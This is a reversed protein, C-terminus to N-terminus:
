SLRPLTNKNYPPSEFKPPAIIISKCCFNIAQDNWIRRIKISNSGDRQGTHTLFLVILDANSIRMPISYALKQFLSPNYRLFLVLDPLVFSIKATMTGLCLSFIGSEHYLMYVHANRMSLKISKFWGKLLM